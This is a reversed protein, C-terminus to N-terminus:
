KKQKFLKELELVYKRQLVEIAMAAARQQAGKKTVSEGSGYEENDIVVAYTFVPCHDPGSRKALQYKAAGLDLRHLIEQLETKPDNPQVTKIKERLVKALFGFTPEYGSTVCMAGVVAEFVDALLSSRLMRREGSRINIYKSVGLELCLEALSETNVLASRMKSLEGESAEPYERALLIAVILDLAADGIFELREYNLLNTDTGLVVPATGDVSVKEILKEASLFCSKHTLALALVSLDGFEYGLSQSFHENLLEASRLVDEARKVEQQRRGSRTEIIRRMPLIKSSKGARKKDM